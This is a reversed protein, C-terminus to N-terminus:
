RRPLKSRTAPRTVPMSGTPTPRVTVGRALRPALVPIEGVGSLPDSRATGDSGPGGSTDDEAYDIVRVPSQHGRFDWEPLPPHMREVVPVGVPRAEPNVPISTSRTSVQPADLPASSSAVHPLALEERPAPSAAAPKRPPPVSSVPAAQARARPVRKADKEEKALLRQFISDDEVSALPVETGRLTVRPADPAVTASVRSAARPALHLDRGSGPHNGSEKLWQPYERLVGGRDEAKALLTSIPGSGPLYGDPDIQRWPYLVFARSHARPHPLTLLKNNLRMRDVDVIDIDLTRAGWKGARVRGFRNEIEQTALLLAPPALVTRGLVVANFYNEQSLAGPELVPLTEILPSVADVQLGDIGALAEVADRLTKVVQGRNGGLALVVDYVYAQPRSPDALFQPTSAVRGHRGRKAGRSPRDVAPESRGHEKHPRPGAAPRVLQPIPAATRQGRGSASAAEGGANAHSRARQPLKRGNGSDSEPAPVSGPGHGTLAADGAPKSPTRVRHPRPNASLGGIGELVAASPQGDRRAATSGERSTGSDKRMGARHRGGTDAAGRRERVVTVSVDTFKQTLPAMPKHVTVQAKAVGAFTLALEALRSALTEILYVSPGTLIAVAGDAVASYDVTDAVDDSDAARRADVYLLIDAVFDQSGNREFEFVGHSGAATLGRLAIVDWDKM